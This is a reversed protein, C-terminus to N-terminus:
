KLTNGNRTVRSYILHVKSMLWVWTGLFSFGIFLGLQGGVNGILSVGTLLYYETYVDLSLERTRYGKSWDLLDIRLDLIITNDIDDSDLMKTTTGNDLKMRKNLDWILIDKNIEYEYVHCSKKTMCKPIIFEKIERWCEAAETKCISIDGPLSLPSCVNGNQM